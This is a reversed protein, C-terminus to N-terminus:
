GRTIIGSRGKSRSAPTSRSSIRSSRPPWRRPSKKPWTSGAWRGSATPGEPWGMKRYFPFKLYSWDEVHEGIVDLYNQADYKEL